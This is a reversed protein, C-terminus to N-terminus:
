AKPGVYTLGTTPRLEYVQNNQITVNTWSKSFILNFDADYLELYFTGSVGAGMDQDYEWPETPSLYLAYYGGINAWWYATTPYNGFLPSIYFGYVTSLVKVEFTDTARHIGEVAELTYFGAPEGIGFDGSGNGNNDATRYIGGGGVVGVWVQSNPTFGSFTFYLSQGQYLWKDLNTITLTAPPAAQSILTSSVVLNYLMPQWGLSVPPLATVTPSNVVTTLMPQWGLSIPPLAIVTPSNVVTTLMPQWGLSIPPLATVTPSNVVATLMPYWAGIAVTFKATASYEKTDVTVSAELTYQGAQTDLPVSYEGSGSGEEDAVVFIATGGAGAIGVTLSPPFRKFSFSLSYGPYVTPNNITLFPKSSSSDSTRSFYWIGVGVAAGVAAAGIVAGTNDKKVTHEQKAM